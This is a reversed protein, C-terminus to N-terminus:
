AGPELRRDVMQYHIANLRNIQEPQHTVIIVATGQNALDKLYAEVALTTNPDLPGTPEDLLLVKPRLLLARILSVRLREGTSLREVVSSFQSEGLGLRAAVSRASVQQSTSFHEAATAKWWGPEAAVYTVKRRWETVSCRDRSIGDLRVEGEGPDLDAILRLFLSKGSGSAGTIAVPREASVALNFPGVLRSRLQHIELRSM